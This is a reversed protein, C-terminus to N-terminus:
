ERKTPSWGDTGVACPDCKHGLAVESAAIGIPIVFNKELIRRRTRERLNRVRCEALVTAKLDVAGILVRASNARVARVDCKRRAAIKSATIRIM